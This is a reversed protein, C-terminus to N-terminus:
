LTMARDVSHSQKKLSQFQLVVFHQTNLQSVYVKWLLWFCNAHPGLGSYWSNLEKVLAFELLNKLQLQRHRVKGQLSQSQSLSDQIEQFYQIM